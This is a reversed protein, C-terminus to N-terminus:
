VKDISDIFENDFILNYTNGHRMRKYVCMTKWIGKNYPHHSWNNFFDTAMHRLQRNTMRDGYKYMIDYLFQPNINQEGILVNDIYELEDKTLGIQDLIEFPCKVNDIDFEITTKLAKPQYM